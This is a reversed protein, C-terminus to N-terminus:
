MGLIVAAHSYPSSGRQSSYRVLDSRHKVGDLSGVLLGLRFLAGRM